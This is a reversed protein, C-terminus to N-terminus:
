FYTECILKQRLQEEKEREELEKIIGERGRTSINTGEYAPWDVPSVDFVSAMHLVTRTIEKKERDEEWSEKDVVFGFSMKSIDGRRVLAYIDKGTTTPAIDAEFKLGREDKTVKLTNNSTRALILAADSHNYRMVVDSMDTKGDIADSCIKEYYKTGSYPSEWILAREEFIAAYGEVHMAEENGAARFEVNRCEIKKKM